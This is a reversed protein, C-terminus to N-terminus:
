GIQDKGQKLLKNVEETLKKGAEAVTAEKKAAQQIYKDLLLNLNDVTIYPSDPLPKAYNLENQSTAFAQKQYPKEQPVSPLLSKLAPLGWGSKAREMAPAGAMFFEMLKWAADKNKAKAPIWAGQGAYCPSVRQAGMIPAPAMAINAQMPDGDKAFNGGYWFGDQTIAMRNATFTSLDGTTLDPLPNIPSPGVGIQIFDVYWKLARQAAATTFDAQTLDASYPSAGQQMIMTTIPAWLNWAWEVGLGFVATKGGKVTTLKKAIVLLEDYTIPETPSLPAVGASKFLAKNYWLTADQSWDKTIGYYSGKGVEKGDWRWSENVPMFDDKKLVTSKELFPDLAATLGRANGNASGYAAGRVFDPPEGSALMANLRTQDFEVQEVVIDPNATQFAAVHDKSLENSNYMVSLKTKGDKTSSSSSSASCASLVPATVAAGAALASATLLRRRGITRGQIENSM